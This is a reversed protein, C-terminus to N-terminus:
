DGNQRIRRSDPFLGREEAYRCFYYAGTLKRSESYNYALCDGLCLDKHLCNGCIGELGGPIVSRLERLGAAGRWVDGLGDKGLNGYILEPVTVGVGCLSMQGESLVGLINLVSCYGQVGKLLARIPRFAMPIDFFITPSHGNKRESVLRRYLEIITEITLGREQALREGRGIRQIHNFKVSGCGLSGALNLVDDIQAVNGTHLTCIMQPKFGAGALAKIGAVARKYSGPVGRLEEHTEARAGDLSVSIFNVAPRSKLFRAMEDDMLTGNTEMIIPMGEGNLWEVIERFRPHLMPEGGTLKVSRLGLPKAETVAKKLFEFELFRGNKADPRFDPEIWCHRCALNCSGSIYLYLSTLPPVGEPLARVAQEKEAETAAKETEPLCSV